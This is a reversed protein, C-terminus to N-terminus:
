DLDRGDPDSVGDEVVGLPRDHHVEALGAEREEPPFGEHHLLRAREGAGGRKRWGPQPLWLSSLWSRKMLHGRRQLAIALSTFRHVRLKLMSQVLPVYCLNHGNKTRRGLNM